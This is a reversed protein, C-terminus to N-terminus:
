ELGATPLFLRDENAADPRVWSRVSMRIEVDTGTVVIRKPLQLDDVAAYRQFDVNWRTKEDDTVLMTRIRGLRDRQADTASGQLGVVWDQMNQLPVRVGLADYLLMEASAGIYEQNDGTVRAGNADETIRYSKLGLPGILRIDFGSVKADWTFTANIVGQEKSNVVLSGQARWPKLDALQADRSRIDDDTVRIPNSQCGAILVFSVAVLVALRIM